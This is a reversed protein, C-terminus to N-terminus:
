ISAERKETVFVTGDKYYMMVLVDGRRLTNALEKTCAAHLMAKGPALETDVWHDYHVMKNGAVDEARYEVSQHLFRGTFVHYTQRLKQVSRWKQWSNLVIFPLVLISIAYYLFEAIEVASGEFMLFFIDKFDFIFMLILGILLGASLATHIWIDAWGGSAQSRHIQRAREAEEATVKGGHLYADRASVIEYRDLNVRHREMM